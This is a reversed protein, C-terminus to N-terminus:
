RYKHDLSELVTTFFNVKLLKFRSINESSTININGLDEQCTDDENDVAPDVNDLPEIM